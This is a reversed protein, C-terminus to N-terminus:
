QKTRWEAYVESARIMPVWQETILQRLKEFNEKPSDLYIAAIMAEICTAIFKHPNKNSNTTKRYDYNQPLHNQGHQDNDGTDYRLYELINYHRAIVEVLMLDSELGSKEITPQSEKDWLYDMLIMKLIADGYTAMDFNTSLPNQVEEFHPDKKRIGRCRYANYSDDTLAQVVYKNGNKLYEEFLDM